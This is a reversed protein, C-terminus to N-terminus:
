RVSTAPIAGAALAIKFASTSAPKGPILVEEGFQLDKIRNLWEYEIM